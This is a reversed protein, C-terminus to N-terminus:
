SPRTPRVVVWPTDWGALALRRRRVRETPVVVVRGAAPEYVEWAEADAAVVLVVHRPLWRNGVYLAVPRGPGILRGVRDLEGGTAPRAGYPSTHLRELERAVAWPPTGLARPWPLQLRGALDRPATVHRHTGLVERAFRTPDTELATALAPERLMRAAVLVSAGCSLADPQRLGPAPVRDLVRRAESGGDGASM